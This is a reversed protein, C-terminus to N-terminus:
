GNRASASNSTTGCPRRELRNYRVIGLPATIEASRKLCLVPDTRKCSFTDRTYAATKTSRCLTTALYLATLFNRTGRVRLM